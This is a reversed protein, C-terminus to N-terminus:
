TFFNIAIYALITFLAAVPFTIFWSSFINTIIKKNIAAIGRAFGIGVIAGVITHTTSIPFGLLSALLITFAAGFEASFGRTPTIETIKEGLTRIVKYGYTFLGVVIGASGLGLVWSQISSVDLLGHPLAMFIAIVPGTANAVDNSGHAFAMLCATIVQLYKFCEEIIKYQRGYQVDAFNERNKFQKSVFSLVWLYSLFAILLSLLIAGLWIILPHLELNLNKLGKFYFFLFLVFAMLFMLYPSFRVFNKLPTKSDLIKNRIFIFISFGILAGLLPSTVWSLAIFGVENWQVAGFGSQYIGFGMVSGIIAHSSSVPLGLITAFHIWAASGVLAAVMGKVLVMSDMSLAESNVLIKSRITDSVNGGLLFAGAFEFIAAVLIAKKFSLAHSGVSTGMANAVDNAGISWAMYFGVFIALFFLINEFGM